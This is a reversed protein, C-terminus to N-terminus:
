MTNCKSLIIYTWLVKQLKQFHSHCIPGCICIFDSKLCSDTVQTRSCKRSWKCSSLVRPSVLFKNLIKQQSGLFSWQWCYRLRGGSVIMFWQINLIRLLVEKLIMRIQQQIELQNTELNGWLCETHMEQKGRWSMINIESDCYNWMVHSLTDCVEEFHLVEM